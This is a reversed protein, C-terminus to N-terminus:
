IRAINEYQSDHYTLCNTTSDISGLANRSTGILSQAGARDGSAEWFMSGGLGHGRVYSVKEVVMDPTDFAILERISPDWSYTAHAVSDFKVEAGSKPLSKYDWTCAEWDVEGIGNFSTGLGDTGLFGRGYIPMGLVLKRAPVGGDLYAKIAADTSFLTSKPNNPNPFLNAQHGTYSSSPGFAGAYDYGMLNIHDLLAGPQRLKLKNYKSPGAPAAASDRRIGANCVINQAM